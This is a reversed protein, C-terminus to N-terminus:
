ASFYRNFEEYVMIGNTLTNVKTLDKNYHSGECANEMIDKGFQIVQDTNKKNSTLTKNLMSELKNMSKVAQEVSQSENLTSYSGNSPTQEEEEVELKGNEVITTGEVDVDRQSGLLRDVPYGFQRLSAISASLIATFKLSDEKGKKALLISALTSALAFEETQATIFIISKTDKEIHYSTSTEM